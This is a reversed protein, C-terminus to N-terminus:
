YYFSSKFRATNDKNDTIVIELTHATNKSLLDGDVSYTLLENKPDYEFLAWKRDIYGAYKRIGTQTDSIKFSILQNVAYTANPKFRHPMIVPPVTDVDIIFDGFSRLSTTVFGNKYEGGQSYFKGDSGRLAIYSSGQLNAPLDAPKISLVYPRFLATYRNNVSYIDSYPFSDNKAEAYQFDVNDFLAGRPIAVRINQNEFVNLSDYYFRAVANQPTNAPQVPFKGNRMFFELVSENGYTDKVRINIRHAKEDNFELIGRNKARKYINLKNNPDIFLKQVKKGTRIMEAYDYHSFIYNGSGFPISDFHCYFFPENDVTVEISNPGCENSAQDLFDYTEIGIGTKGEVYITDPQVFFRKESRKVKLPLSLPIGNVTKSSDLSYVMLWRIEPKVKDRINFGFQLPNLPVAGTIDRIEFHLHPGFSSGSNGSLGIYAGRSYKFQGKKPSLDVTFSKKIYQQEKVYREVKSDFRSLHAYVSTYGSPHRMYVAKGYGGSLVVIRYIYGSDIAFVKKGEVQQTKFDIGAHFHASRYEGYNSSLFLPIDLPSVFNHKTAKQAMANQSFAPTVFLGLIILLFSFNHMYKFLM